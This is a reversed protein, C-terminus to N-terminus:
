WWYGAASKQNEFYHSKYLEATSSTQWEPFTDAHSRIHEVLTVLPKYPLPQGTLLDIEISRLVSVIHAYSPNDTDGRLSDYVPQSIFKEALETEILVLQPHVQEFYALAHDKHLSVPLTRPTQFLTQTFYRGQVSNRWDMEALLTHLIDELTYDRARELNALLREVREKSAPAITNNSVVGFGNPTLVLDLSPIARIFADEAILKGLDESDVLAFQEECVLFRRVWSESLRLEMRMKDFLTREGEVTVLANPLYQRLTNDDNIIM